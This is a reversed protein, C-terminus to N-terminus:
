QRRGGKRWLSMGEWMDQYLLFVPKQRERGRYTFFTGWRYWRSTFAGKPPPPPLEHGLQRLIDYINDVDTVNNQNGM